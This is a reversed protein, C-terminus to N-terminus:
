RLLPPCFGGGGTQSVKTAFDQIEEVASSFNAKTEMDATVLPERQWDRSVPRELLYILISPSVQTSSHNPPGHSTVIDNKQIKNNQQVVGPLLVSCSFSLYIWFQINLTYILSSSLSVLPFAIRQNVTLKSRM